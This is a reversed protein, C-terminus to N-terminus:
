AAPQPAGAKGQHALPRALAELALERLRQWEELLWEEFSLEDLAFGSLLNM